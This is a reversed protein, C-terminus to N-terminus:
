AIHIKGDIVYYLAEAGDYDVVKWDTVEDPIDIIVVESYPYCIDDGYKEILNILKENTREKYFTGFPDVGYQEAIEEDIHFGGFCKNLAIKM